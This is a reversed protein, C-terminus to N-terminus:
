AVGVLKEAPKEDTQGTVRLLSHLDAETIPVGRAIRQLLLTLQALFLAAQSRGGEALLSDRLPRLNDLTDDLSKSIKANLSEGGSQRPIERPNFLKQDNPIKTETLSYGM